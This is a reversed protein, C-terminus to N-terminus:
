IMWKCHVPKVFLTLTASTQFLVPSIPVTDASEGGICPKQRSDSAPRSRIGNTSAFLGSRDRHAHTLPHAM